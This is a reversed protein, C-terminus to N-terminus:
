FTVRISAGIRRASPGTFFELGRGNSVGLGSTEPDFHVYKPFNPAYYWLNNGTISLSISGFPLKQIMKQPLSFSLSAERIRINTGDYIGAEDAAGGAVTNNFYAQTASIQKDNPTKDAKVGPLIYPLARDFETDRTVGRGLLVSSTASYFDGGKTYEMQVRFSISKYSLSTIGTLKYDPTPDGLISIDNATLYDGGEGVIKEGNDARQYAYGQIVGLPQGNIAFTGLNTFGATRIQKLDDPIGSVLSTNKTFLGDLKWQWNKNRIVTYGLSLEIGKNKVNGANITQVNFGTSPDLDRNLIQDKTYRIYLSLDLSLRNDIFKGETGFEYEKFLAPKLDKNPLRSPIFNTNISTGANDIFVKTAIGLTPRTRYLGPFEASTGYALRVKLYNINRSDRLAAFTATPIFALNVSPYFINRNSKELASTWSERGGLNLFLYEKYGFSTFAFAGVSELESSFQLEGGDEGVSQKDIFNAHNLLGYVM